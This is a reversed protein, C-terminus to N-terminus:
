LVQGLDGGVKRHKNMGSILIPPAAAILDADAGGATDGLRVEGDMVVLPVFVILDM